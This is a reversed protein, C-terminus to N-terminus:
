DGGTKGAPADDRRKASESWGSRLNAGLFAGLLLAGGYIPLAILAIVSMWAMGFDRVSQAFLFYGLEIVLVTGLLMLAPRLGFLMGSILGVVLPGLWIWVMM